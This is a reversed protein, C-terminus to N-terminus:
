ISYIQNEKSSLKLYGLVFYMLLNKYSLFISKINGYIFCFDSQYNRGSKHEPLPIIVKLFITTSLYRM